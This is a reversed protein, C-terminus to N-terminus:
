LGKLPFYEHRSTGRGRGRRELGELGARGAEIGSLPSPINPIGLGNQIGAGLGGDTLFPSRHDGSTLGTSGLLPRPMGQISGADAGGAGSDPRV